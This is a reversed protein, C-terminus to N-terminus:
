SKTLILFLQSKPLKGQTCILHKTQKQLAHARLSYALHRSANRHMGLMPVLRNQCHICVAGFNQYLLMMVRARYCLLSSSLSQAAFSLDPPSGKPPLSPHLWALRALSNKPYPHVLMNLHQLFRTYTSSRLGYKGHLYGAAMIGTIGM